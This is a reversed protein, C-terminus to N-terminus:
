ILKIKRVQALLLHAEKAAIVENQEEIL